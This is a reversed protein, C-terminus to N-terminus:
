FATCYPAPWCCRPACVQKVEGKIEEMSANVLAAANSEWMPATGCAPDASSDKSFAPQLLGPSSAMQAELQLPQGWGGLLLPEKKAPIPVTSRQPTELDWGLMMDPRPESERIVLSDYQMRLQAQTHEGRWDAKLSLWDKRTAVMGPGCTCSVQRVQMDRFELAAAVLRMERALEQNERQLENLIEINNQVIRELHRRCVAQLRLLPWLNAANLGGM